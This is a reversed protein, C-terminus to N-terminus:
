LAHFSYNRSDCVPRYGIKQYIANSTPNALDTYLVCSLKGRRLGEESLAAVLASAFGRRRQAPPTYVSNVSITRATPRALGAMSVLQDHVAWGFLNGDRIRKSMRDRAQDISRRERPPLAEEDFGQGWRTVLELDAPLIPRMRGPVPAPWCVETLEFVRQDVALVEGCGRERAWASAFREAERAPGIVGPLDVGLSSLRAATAEVAADPGRSVILNIEGYLAAFITQGASAVRAMVTMSATPHKELAALVGLFLGNEAERQELWGAVDRAFAAADQYLEVQGSM